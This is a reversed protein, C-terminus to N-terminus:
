KSDVKQRRRPSWNCMYKVPQYQGVPGQTHINQRKGERDIMQINEQQLTKM